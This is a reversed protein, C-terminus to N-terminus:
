PSFPGNSRTSISDSSFNAVLILVGCSGTNMCLAM